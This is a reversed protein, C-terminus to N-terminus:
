FSLGTANRFVRRLNHQCTALKRVEYSQCSYRRAFRVLFGLFLIAQFEQFDACKEQIKENTM